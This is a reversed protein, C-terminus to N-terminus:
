ISKYLHFVFLHSM